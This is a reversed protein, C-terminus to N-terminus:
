VVSETCTDEEETTPMRKTKLNKSTRQPFYEDCPTAM